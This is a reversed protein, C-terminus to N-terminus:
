SAGLELLRERAQKAAPQTNIKENGILERYTEVADTARNMEELARGSILYAEAAWKAVGPYLVYVRQSFGFATKFDGAEFHTLGIKYNAEAWAPGRWERVKLVERYAAIAALTGGRERELDGERLRAEMAHPSAPFFDAVHRWAEISGVVDGQESRLEALIRWREGDPDSGGNRQIAEELLALAFTPDETRTLRAASLLVAASAEPGNTKTVEPLRTELVGLGRLTYALRLALTAQDQAQAIALADRLVQEASKGRVAEYHGPFEALMLDPGTDAPDNGFRQIAQMWTDLMAEDRGMGVQARGLEYIADGARGDQGWRRLYTEFWEGMEPWRREAAFLKGAQFVAHNIYSMNPPSLQAGADQAAAYANIAADTKGESAELDGMLAYAESVLRSAPYDILFGELANRAKAGQMLGFWCVGERYAADEGYAGNPYDRQIIQFHKLSTKFTGELVGVLGLWYRLGDSFGSDPYEALMPQFREILGPRDDLEVLTSGVLYVLKPADQLNPDIRVREMFAEALERVALRNGTRVETRLLEYGVDGIFRQSDANRLYRRAVRRTRDDRGSAASMKVQGYIAEEAFGSKDEDAAAARELNVFAWYAEFSRGRALYCRAIRFGLASAYDLTRAANSKTEEAASERVGLQALRAEAQAFENELAVLRDAFWDVGVIRARELKLADRESQWFQILSGPRLVLEYFYLAEGFRGVEYLEDGGRMLALNLALDYRSKGTRGSLDPLTALAADFDNQAIAAQLLYSGAKANKEDAERGRLLRSAALKMEAFVDKGEAWDRAAYVTDAYHEWYAAQQELPLDAPNHQSRLAGYVSRADELRGQYYFADGWYARAQIVTPAKPYTEVFQAFTYTAGVLDASQLKGIGLYYLVNERARVAASDASERLRRDLETLYPVAAGFAAREIERQARQQLSSSSLQTADIAWGTSGVSAWVAGGVFLAFSIRKLLRFSM